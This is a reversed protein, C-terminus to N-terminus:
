YCRSSCTRRRAPSRTVGRTGARPATWRRGPSTPRWTAWNGNSPTGTPEPPPGLSSPTTWRRPRTGPRRPEPCCRTPSTGTARSHVAAVRYTDRGGDDWAVRVRDGVTVGLDRAASNGLAVSTEGLRALSGAHVGLDLLCPVADARMAVLVQRRLMETNATGEAALVGFARVPQESGALREAERATHFVAYQRAPRRPPDAVGSVQYPRLGTRDAWGYPTARGSTSVGPRSLM